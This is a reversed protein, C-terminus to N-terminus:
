GAGASCVYSGLGGPILVIAAVWGAIVIAVSTRVLRGSRLAFAIVGVLVAFISSIFATWMLVDLALSLATPCEDSSRVGALLIELLLSAVALGALALTLTSAFGSRSRQGANTGSVGM